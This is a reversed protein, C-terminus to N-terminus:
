KVPPNSLTGLIFPEAFEVCRFEHIAADAEIRRYLPFRMTWPRTFVEPDDITAEYHLHDTGTRTWRETVRMDASHFNGARDFWTDAVQSTVDVVLTDGDWHGRSHGMWTDVPSEGVDTMHVIRSAHAFEYAILVNGIGQIIQFPFPMYNARPVGPMFCKAEPDGVTLDLPDVSLRTDFNVRKQELAWERYPLENGDVIGRGAPVAGVAGLLEPFPGPSAPHDLIDYNATNLAQWIGNLDPTGDALRPVEVPPTQGLVPLAPLLATAVTAVLALAVLQTSRM